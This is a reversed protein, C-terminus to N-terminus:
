ISSAKRGFSAPEAALAILHSGGSAEARTPADQGRRAFLACAARLMGENSGGHWETCEGPQTRQVTYEPQSFPRASLSNHALGSKIEGLSDLGM